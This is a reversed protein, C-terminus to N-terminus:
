FTAHLSDSASYTAQCPSMLRLTIGTTGAFCPLASGVVLAVIPLQVSSAAISAVPIIRACSTCRDAMVAGISGLRVRLDWQSNIQSQM